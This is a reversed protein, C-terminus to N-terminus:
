RGRPAQSSRSNPRRGRPPYPRRSNRREPRKDAEASSQSKIIRTETEAELAASEGLIHKDAIIELEYEDPHMRGDAFILVKTGMQDELRSLFKRKNNLIMLAVSPSMKVRVESVGGSYVVSQIKRIAELSSSEPTKVRGRGKCHPCIMQSHSILSSRLRQRSMEMLGFKSIRAFEIKAKDTRTADRLIREVSQRHHNDFMDIFDIVILGGLDRLRLQTAIAVAAEKNTTFATEEVDSQGTLRGSNVDVAVLAETQVIVISGGSPLTVESQNVADVQADLM